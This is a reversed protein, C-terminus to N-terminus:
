RLRARDEHRPGGTSGHLHAPGAGGISRLFRPPRGAHLVAIAQQLRRRAACRRARAVPRGGRCPIVRRAPPRPAGEGDRRLRFSGVMAALEASQGSLEEAASSSEESSAANQQTVKDMDAVARNVQEVGQAQELSSAAMEAVIESVKQATGVIEALKANVQRAAAEGESAEKVSQKILDDTKSAAEKARLALSRVEGAVVAFGRGADGARAAEVAANLALLNTQFAIESIDRIIQNTGEASQRIRGMAGSMQQMAAAGEQASSRAGTALANALRASESAHRTASAITELSSSTEELASAQQSAGSAVAQSSGAIQGAAGSVQEVADAVRAMAQHLGEAAGNIADKVKAFEGQYDGEMRATLDQQALKELVRAAEDIPRRVVELLDNVAAIVTGNSGSYRGADARVDLKGAAAASLLSELDRDRMEVVGILENWNRKVEDFDGRYEDTIRPPLEGRSVTAVYAASLKVPGVFADVIENM